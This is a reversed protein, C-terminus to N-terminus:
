WWTSLEKLTEKVNIPEAVEAAKVPEPEPEKVPATSVFTNTTVILPATDLEVPLVVGRAQLIDRVKDDSVFQRLIFVPAFREFLYKAIPQLHTM